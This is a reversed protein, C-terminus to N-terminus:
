RRARAMEENSVIAQLSALVRALAINCERWIAAHGSIEQRLPDVRHLEPRRQSVRTATAHLRADESPATVCRNKTKTINCTRRPGDVTQGHNLTPTRLAIDHRSHDLLIEIVSQWFYSPRKTSGPDRETDSSAIPHMRSVSQPTHRFPSIPRPSCTQGAPRKARRSQM